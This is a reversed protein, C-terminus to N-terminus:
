FLSLQNCNKNDAEQLDRKTLLQQLEDYCMVNVSLVQLINYLSCDELNLRKRIIAVLVYVCVGIWIQTKVANM